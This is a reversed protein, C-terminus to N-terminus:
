CSKCISVLFNKAQIEFGLSEFFESLAESIVGERYRELLRQELEQEQQRLYDPNVM